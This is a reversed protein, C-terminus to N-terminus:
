VPVSDYRRAIEARVEANTISEAPLRGLELFMQELGGPAWITLLTGGGLGAHVHRLGRAVMVFAGQKADLDRDGCTFAFAGELVYFSEELRRHVHPILMSLPDSWLLGLFHVQLRSLLPSLSRAHLVVSLVAGEGPGGLEERFAPRRDDHPVKRGPAARERLEALASGADGLGEEGLAERHELPVAHDRSLQMSLTAAGIVLQGLATSLQLLDAIRHTLPARPPELDLGVM